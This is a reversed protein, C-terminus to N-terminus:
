TNRGRANEGKERELSQESPDKRIGVDKLIAAEKM